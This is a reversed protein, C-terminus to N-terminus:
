QKQGPRPKGNENFLNGQKFEQITFQLLNDAKKEPAAYTPSIGDFSLQQGNFLYAFGTAMVLMSGDEFESIGKLFSFGATPDKGIIQGRRYEKIIAALLESSSGSQSDVLIALPGDYKIKSEKTILGGVLQNRKQYYALKTEPPLFLGAMERVALPPGGPNGQIDLILLEIQNEQFNEIYNKLDVSTKKNFSRIQLCYIGSIETPIKTITERFYEESKIQYDNIKDTAEDLVTLEVTSELEPTLKKEIEERSMKLVDKSNIKLILNGARIGKLYSNSRIEVKEVQYGKETLKGTIGIDQRQGYAEQTFEKAKEPPIFNTFSDDPHRLQMVLLGAGRYAIEDIRRDIPPIQELVSEKYRQRFQNYVAESVPYHYKERMAQYVDDLFELYPRYYSPLSEKGSADPTFFYGAGTLFFFLLLFLFSKKM